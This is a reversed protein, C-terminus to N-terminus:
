GCGVLAIGVRLLTSTIWELGRTARASVGVTNRWAMGLVIACFVPSVPTASHAALVGGLERALFAAAIALGAALAIGPAYGRWHESSARLM